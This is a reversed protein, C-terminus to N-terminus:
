TTATGDPTTPTPGAGAKPDDGGVVMDAQSLSMFRGVDAFTMEAFLAKAAARGFSPDAKHICLYLLEIVGEVSRVKADAEADQGILRRGKTAADMALQYLHKQQVQTYQGSAIQRNVVEFPDPFQRDVWDQLPGTFDDITLPQVPYTRGKILVSRPQSNLQTM